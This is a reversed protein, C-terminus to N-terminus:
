DAERPVGSIVQLLVPGEGGEGTVAQAPKGYARNLVEQSAALAVKPEGSDVLELIRKWAKPAAKRALEQVEKVVKPRGTPNGSRGKEFPRGVM